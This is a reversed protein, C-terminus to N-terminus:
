WAAPDVDGAPIDLVEAIYAQSVPDPRVGNVEWKRVRAKDVGSRLGRRRAAGHVAEAFEVRNFGRAVRVATLPHPTREDEDM